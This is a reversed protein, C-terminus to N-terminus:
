DMLPSLNLHAGVLDAVADLAADRDQAYDPIDLPLPALNKRDRLRNLWSRRWAANDFIGHLYTGWIRDDITWGLSEDAFLFQPINGTWQTEGQHMEYGSIEQNLGFYRDAVQRQRLTKAAGIVTRIPLLGL